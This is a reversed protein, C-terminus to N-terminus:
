WAATFAPEVLWSVRGDARVLPLRAEVGALGLTRTLISLQQEEPLLNALWPSIVESAFPGPQLPMTVSLPFAGRTGLWAPSYVFSLDGGIGVLIDGIQLADFWVPVPASM